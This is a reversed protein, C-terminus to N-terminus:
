SARRSARDNMASVSRAVSRQESERIARHIRQEVGADAGRADITTHSVNTVERARGDSAKVQDTLAKTVVTEGGHGIIPVAGAGPIEGGGEFAMVGAFAAAAAIPAIVANAPFPMDQMVWTFASAAAHGADKAQKMDGILIMKLANALADELLQKGLAAMSDGLNKGEVISKAVNKSIAGAIAEEGRRVIAGLQEEGKNVIKQRDNWYKQELQLKKDNLSQIKVADKVPDLLAQQQNYGALEIQYSKQAGDLEAKVTEQITTQHMALKHRAAEEEGKFSLQAMALTQNLAERELGERIKEEEEAEKRVTQVREVLLAKYFSTDQLGKSQEEKIAADIAALREKTGAKTVEIKEKESTQLASVAEKYSQEWARQAEDASKKAEAANQRYVKDQDAGIQNDTKQTADTKQAAKLAAVKQEVEVQATLIDVLKQQRALEEPSSGHGGQQANYLDRFQEAQKLTGTLLGHAEEDKGQALLSDYDAKFKKLANVQGSGEVTGLNYWKEKMEAFVVDASKAIIDFQQALEKMSIRDILELQKQLAGLHDGALEDARIGAQLLKDDLNNFVEQVTTGFKTQAETLKEAAEHMKVLHEILLTAGLIIALFPFAAEMAAGVPGLSAIFSTIGRPLHVGFEEGLLMVGHRAETMSYDVSSGASKADDSLVKLDGSAKGLDGSFTATNAELNVTLTGIVTGM